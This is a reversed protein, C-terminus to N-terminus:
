PAVYLTSLAIDNEIRLRVVDGPWVVVHPTEYSSSAIPLLEFAIMAGHSILTRPLAFREVAATEATGLRVPLRNDALLFVRMTQWSHNEVMLVAREEPGGSSYRATGGCGAVVVAAACLLVRANM